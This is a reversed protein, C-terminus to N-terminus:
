VLTPIYSKWCFYVKASWSSLDFVTWLIKPSVLNAGGAALVLDIISASPKLLTYPKLSLICFILKRSFAM